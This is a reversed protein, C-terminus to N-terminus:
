TALLSVLTEDTLALQMLAANEVNSQRQVGSATGYHYVQGEADVHHWDNM